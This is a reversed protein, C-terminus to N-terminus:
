VSAFSTTGVDPSGRAKGQMAKGQRAKGQRAMHMMYDHIMFANHFPNTHQGAPSLSSGGDVASAQCHDEPSLAFLPSPLPFLPYFVRM